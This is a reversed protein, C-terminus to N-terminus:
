KVRIREGPFVLNPNKINNILMLKQWTTGYKQAIKSLNEDKKVIHYQVTDKPTTSPKKVLENVINQITKYDYGAETLKKKRIDGNGWKGDLVEKAIEENSKKVSQKEEVTYKVWPTMLGHKTWTGNKSGGKCNYRTGKDDVYSYLIGGGWSATCEIVNYVKGNITCEEGIYGGIHGSMYLLRPENIKLKAFDSSLDTCQTILGYETCDGTNSLDRQYYGVTKNNVDYGNLLAKYLNVCDASTRGDTNIYCLNYPYKNKYFTKRNALNKLSKVLEVSTTM